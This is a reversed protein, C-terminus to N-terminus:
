SRDSETRSQLVNLVNECDTGAPVILWLRRLHTLSAQEMASRLLVLFREPKLSGHLTGLMPIALSQLKRRESERFIEDLASAVWEERWSPEENVDHVIALFRLPRKGRVLISGPKVPLTKRGESVLQDVSEGSYEVQQTTDMILFTDQEIAMAEIDFPPDNEPAAIIQLKRNEYSQHLSVFGYPTRLLRFGLTVYRGAPSHVHRYASRCFRADHFWGGGRIVRRSGSGIYIPDVRDKDYIDTGYIDQCWEWVNGHMDHLGWANPPFGAVPVTKKRYTGKSCGELPYNGDYNAQDASLCKGFFFPTDTGARCSYEWEAETPLRYKETDEKRNLWKAFAQVDNWSVCSVPHSEEQSFGPNDWFYEKKMELRFGTWGYAGGDTEAQTRFGTDRVFTRWQGVTVQTNQMYFGGTLTVRHPNENDYRGPEDEPSGMIFTGPPIHVFEMGLSNTLREPPADTKVCSKGGKDEASREEEVVKIVPDAQPPKPEPVSPMKEPQVSETLNAERGMKGEKLMRFGLSGGRIGPSRSGRYASRCDRVGSFCGGGRYVRSLGSGVYIPDVRDKDYIDTGYVDQCWEWVNGHMDHLGWANPPFGAVPVTKKRYTGKSCGEPPYNGDYNAQDAPLCKGFFFPTDTGARCSYEWEAETPLRYKDTGEKRNLWKTFAQVDNWSVCTVPHSEEQSFGPNDWYYEKRMELGSGTWGYAGGDTEAEAQTRYGTDRVFTRWQGVTVQTNQMYFGGTLTVRHPNENDYRGPEDEPSGMMFTGPRIHVFKMALSNIFSPEPESIEIEYAREDQAPDSIIEVPTVEDAPIESKRRECEPCESVGRPMRIGCSPCVLRAGCGPCLKWRKEVEHGCKPCAFRLRAGCYPCIRWERGAPEGCEPCASEDPKKLYGMLQDIVARFFNHSYLIGHHRPLSRISEPLDGPDPFVFEEQLVPIIHRETRVAHEIERCLWDGPNKCRDLSGASLILLFNPANEIVRLLKEDFYGPRLEDVDLFVRLGRESLAHQFLRAKDSGGERRYSIFIDYDNESHTKDTM